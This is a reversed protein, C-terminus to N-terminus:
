GTSGPKKRQVTDLDDQKITGGKREKGRRFGQDDDRSPDVERDPNTMPKAETTDAFSAPPNVSRAERRLDGKEECDEDREGDAEERAEHVAESTAWNLTGGNRAVNATWPIVYPMERRIVPPDAATFTGLRALM